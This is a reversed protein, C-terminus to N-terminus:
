PALPPLGQREREREVEELIAEAMAEAFADVGGVSEVDEATAMLFPERTTEAPKTQM